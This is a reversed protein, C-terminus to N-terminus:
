AWADNALENASPMRLALDACRGLCRPLQGAIMVEECNSSRTRQHPTLWLPPYWIDGISELLGPYRSGERASADVDGYVSALGCGKSLYQRVYGRTSFNLGGCIVRPGGYSAAINQLTHVQWACVDGKSPDQCFQATAVTFRRRGADVKSTLRLEVVLGVSGSRFRAVNGGLAPPPPHADLIVEQHQPSAKELLDRRWAIACAAGGTAGPRQVCVWDYLYPEMGLAELGCEVDQLCIVHADLHAFASRGESRRWSYLALEEASGRAGRNGCAGPLVKCTAVRITRILAQDEGLRKAQLCRLSLPLWRRLKLRLKEVPRRRALIEIMRDADGSVGNVEYIVDGRVVQQYPNASNWDTLLGGYLAVICLGCDNAADVDIGLCAEGRKILVVEFEPSVLREERVPMQEFPLFGLALTRSGEVSQHVPQLKPMKKADSSEPLNILDSIPLKLPGTQHTM